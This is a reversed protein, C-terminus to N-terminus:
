PPFGAWPLGARLGFLRVLLAALAFILLVLSLSLLRRKRRRRRARTLSSGVTPWLLNSQSESLLLVMSPDRKIM